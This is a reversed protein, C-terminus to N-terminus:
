KQLHKSIATPLKKPAKIRLQKHVNCQGFVVEIDGSAVGFQEALFKVMYDTAKGAIPRATVSINIQKGNVKGIADRRAGPQGLINLILTDGDWCVAMDKTEAPTEQYQKVDLEVTSDDKKNERGKKKEKKKSMDRFQKM